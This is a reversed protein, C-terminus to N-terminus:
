RVILSHTLWPKDALSEPLQECGERWPPKLPNALRFTHLESSKLSMQLKFLLNVFLVSVMQQSVKWISTVIPISVTIGPAGDTDGVCTSPAFAQASGWQEGLGCLSCSELQLLWSQFWHGRSAGAVIHLILRNALPSRAWQEKIRYNRVPVGHWSGSAWKDDM